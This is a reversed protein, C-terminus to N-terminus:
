TGTPFAKNRLSFRATVFSLRTLTANGSTGAELTFSMAVQKVSLAVYSGPALQDTAAGGSTNYFSFAFATCNVVRASTSTDALLVLAPNANLTRTVRKNASDYSYTVTGIPLTLALSTATPASALATAAKLDQTLYDVAQRSKAELQQHLGIRTLNRGLYLYASTVATMVMIALTLSVMMEVLTFGRLAAVPRM